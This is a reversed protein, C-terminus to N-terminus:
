WSVDGRRVLNEGDASLWEDWRRAQTAFARLRESQRGAWFVVVWYYVHGGGGCGGLALSFRGGVRDDISPDQALCCAGGVEGKVEAKLRPTAREAWKM